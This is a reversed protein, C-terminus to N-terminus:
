HLIINNINFSVIKIKFDFKFKSNTKFVSKLNNKNLFLININMPM